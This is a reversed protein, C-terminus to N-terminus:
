RTAWEGVELFPRENGKSDKGMVEVLAGTETWAKLMGRIRERQRKDDADVGLTTAVIHGAWERSQADKRYRKGDFAQQVRLLDAATVAEFPEPWTWRTVVGVQDGPEGFPGNPLAIDELRFWTSNDFPPALNGKGDTARFYLRHNEVGAKEAEDKTM